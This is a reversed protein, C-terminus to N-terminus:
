FRFKPLWKAGSTTNRFQSLPHSGMVCGEGEGARLRRQRDGHNTPGSRPRRFPQGAIESLGGSGQPNSLGYLARRPTTQSEIGQCRTYM